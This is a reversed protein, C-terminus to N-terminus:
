THCALVANSLREDVIVHDILSPVCNSGPVFSFQSGTCQRSGTIVQLNYDSTLSILYIKRASFSDTDSLRNNFDGLLIVHTDKLNLKNLLDHLNDIESKFSELPM